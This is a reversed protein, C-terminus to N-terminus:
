HVARGVRRGARAQAVVLYRRANAPMARRRARRARVARSHPWRRRITARTIAATPARGGELRSSATLGVAARPARRRSSMSPFALPKAGTATERGCRRGTDGGRRTRRPSNPRQRADVPQTLFGIDARPRVGEPVVSRWGRSAPATSRRHRRCSGRGGNTRADLLGYLCSGGSACPSWAACLGFDRSAAQCGVKEMPVFPRCNFTRSLLVSRAPRGERASNSARRGTSQPRRQPGCSPRPSADLSLWSLLRSPEAAADYCDRGGWPDHRARPGPACRRAHRASGQAALIRDGRRASRLGAGSLKRYRPSGDRATLRV